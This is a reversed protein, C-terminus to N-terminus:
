YADSLSLKFASWNDCYMIAKDATKRMLESVSQSLWIIECATATLAIYEVETSSLAVISQRKSSKIVFGICSRRNGLESAWDSDSYTNNFRSVNNVTFAIDPRNDQALYLLAGVAEQYPIKGALSNEITVMDTSLKNSTDASNKVPKCDQMDFRITM